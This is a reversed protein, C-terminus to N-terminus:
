TRNGDEQKERIYDEITKGEYGRLWREAAWHKSLFIFATNVIANEGDTTPDKKYVNYFAQKAAQMMRTTEGVLGDMGELKDATKFGTAQPIPQKQQPAQQEPVAPPSSLTKQPEPKKTVVVISYYSSEVDRVGNKYKGDGSLVWEVRVRDGRDHAEKVTKPVDGFYSIEVGNITLFFMGKGTSKTKATRIKQIVGEIVEVM